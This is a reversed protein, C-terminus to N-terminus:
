RQGNRCRVKDNEITTSHRPRESLRDAFAAMNKAIDDFHEYRPLSTSEYMSQMDKGVRTVFDVFQIVAASLSLATFPDM